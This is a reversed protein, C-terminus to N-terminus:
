NYKNQKCISVGGALKLKQKCFHEAANVGGGKRRNEGHNKKEESLHSKKVNGARNEWDKWWYKIHSHFLPCNGEKEKGKKERQFHQHEARAAPASPEQSCESEALVSQM